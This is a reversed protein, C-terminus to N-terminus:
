KKLLSDLKSIESIYNPLRVDYYNRIKDEMKMLWEFHKTLTDPQSLSSVPIVYNEDTGFLDMAIGKAKVSYGVVLTPVKESYGAISAHTRAAVLFRCRAIYGKLEMSNHDDLLIVRNTDKYHEYLCTLPKRDDNHSWVVHPILAIQMQTRSVIFDILKEYNKLTIGQNSEHNLILPSVNIGVTNGEEFGEPLPKEIKDLVFATDPVWHINPIQREKLAQYTISERVTILNYLRLDEEMKSNIRFPDISCGWLATHIHAAHLKKNLLAYQEPFGTYCYNDGGIALAWDTNGIKHTFHRYIAEYYVSDDKRLKMLILYPLKSIGHPLDDKANNVTTIQNIGYYLDEQPQESLLSFETENKKLVKITSRVLAECGHNASGGHAYLTIKMIKKTKFLNELLTYVLIIGM